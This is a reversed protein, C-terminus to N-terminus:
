SNRGPRPNALAGAQIADDIEIRRQTVRRARQV